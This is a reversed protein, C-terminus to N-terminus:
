YRFIAAAPAAGPMREPELAYVQGGHELTRAACLELLDLDGPAQRPHVEMVGSNDEFVGWRQDRASVFLEGVRGDYAAQLITKMHNAARPTGQLQLYRKVAEATGAEFGPRVVEWAKDRLVEPRLGDPNGAIRGDCVRPYTNAKEYIRTLYDVGALVLPGGQGNLLARVARNVSRYYFLINEKDEDSDEGSGHFVARRSGAARGATRTHFQLQKEGAQFDLLDTISKPARRLDTESVSYRSCQYLKVTRRNLALVWFRGDEAFLPLLQRIYFREGVAATETFELPLTYARKLEPSLFVALGGMQYQWFLNDELMTRCSSTLEEIRPRRVASAALKHEAEALLKRFRIPNQKTEITSQVTPMYISVCPGTRADMLEKLEEKKMLLM